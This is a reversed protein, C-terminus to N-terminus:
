SIKNEDTEDSSYIIRKGIFNRLIKLSHNVSDKQCKWKKGSSDEAFIKENKNLNESFYPCALHIVEHPRLTKPLDFGQNHLEKLKGNTDEIIIRTITEPIMGMNSIVIFISKQDSYRGRTVLCVRLRVKNQYFNQFIAIGLAVLVAFFTAIASFASWNM